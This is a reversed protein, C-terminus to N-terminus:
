KFLKQNFNLYIISDGNNPISSLCIKDVGYYQAFAIAIWNTNCGEFFLNGENGVVNPFSIQEYLGSEHNELMYYRHNIEREYNPLLKYQFYLQEVYSPLPVYKQTKIGPLIFMLFLIAILSVSISLKNRIICSFLMAFLFYFIFVQIYAINVHRSEVYGGVTLLVVNVLVTLILLIHIAFIKKTSVSLELFPVILFILIFRKDLMFAGISKLYSLGGSQFKELLPLGYQHSRAFNGPSLVEFLFCLLNLIIIYCMLFKNKKYINSFLLLYLNILIFNWGVLEASGIILVTLLSLILLFSFNIRFNLLLSFYLLSLIFPLFYAIYWDVVFFAASM